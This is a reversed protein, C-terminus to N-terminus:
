KYTESAFTRKIGKNYEVDPYGLILFLGERSKYKIGHEERFKTAKGGNQILPHIAGLMCTGLGLSEAALMAYTAAVIPDAPDTYPSGYFYIAVPADYTIVNEGRDMSDQYISFVPQVFDKFMEYNAKSIFPRMLSLSFDSFFWKISKLYDCLDKAFQNTKERTDFILINVDSPPLGMPSTRAAFLIKEILDKEVEKDKFERISRRRQCLTLLSSYDSAFEKEPLDFLDEKSLTRGSIEIAGNPCIAMCHGCAICGFCSESKQRVKNDIIELSFDKCVKVCLGCGICKDTDIIIKGPEKTRSTPISM